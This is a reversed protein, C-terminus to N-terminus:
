SPNEGGDAPRGPRFRVTYFIGLAALLAGWWVDAHLHSMATAKKAPDDWRVLGYLLILGGYVLLTVGIFFWIPIQKGRGESM